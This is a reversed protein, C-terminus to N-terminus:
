TAIFNNINETFDPVKAFESGNGGIWFPLSYRMVFLAYVISVIDHWENEIVYNSSNAIFTVLFFIRIFIVYAHWISHWHCSSNWYYKKKGHSKRAIYKRKCVHSFWDASIPFPKIRTHYKIDGSVFSFQTLAHLHTHIHTQQTQTLNSAIQFHCAPISVTM